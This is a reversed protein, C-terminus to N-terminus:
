RFLISDLVALATLYFLLFTIHWRAAAIQNENDSRYGRILRLLERALFPLAAAALFFFIPQM